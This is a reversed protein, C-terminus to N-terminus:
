VYEIDDRRDIWVFLRYILLMSLAIVGFFGISYAIKEALTPYSQIKEIIDSM